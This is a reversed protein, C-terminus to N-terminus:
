RFWAGLRCRLGRMDEEPQRGSVGGGRQGRLRSHGGRGELGVAVVPPGKAQEDQGSEERRLARGVKLGELGGHQCLHRGAARLHRALSSASWAGTETGM